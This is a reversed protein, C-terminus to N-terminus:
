RRERSPLILLPIMWALAICLLGGIFVLAQGTAASFATGLLWIGFLLLGLTLTLAFANKM